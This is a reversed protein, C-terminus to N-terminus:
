DHLLFLVAVMLGAVGFYIVADALRNRRVTLGGLMSAPLVVRLCGGVLMAGALFSVGFRWRDPAAVLAVFSTLAIAVVVSFAAHERLWTSSRSM